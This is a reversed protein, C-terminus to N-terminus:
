QLQSRAFERAFHCQRLLHLFRHDLGGRLGCLTLESQLSYQASSQLQHSIEKAELEIAYRMIVFPPTVALPSKWLKNQLGEFDCTVEPTIRNM